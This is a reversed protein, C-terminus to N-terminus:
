NAWVKLTFWTSGLTGRCLLERIWKTAAEVTANVFGNM